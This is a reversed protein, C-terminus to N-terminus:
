RYEPLCTGKMQNLAATIVDRTILGGQCISGIVNMCYAYTDQDYYKYDKVVNETIITPGGHEQTDLVEQLFLVSKKVKEIESKWKFLKTKCHEGMKEQFHIISGHSMSVGLKCLADIDEYKTGSHFLITSVRYALASMRRNRARAAVATAIALSNVKFKDEDPEKPDVGSAGTLAATWFPCVNEVEDLLKKSTFEAVEKPTKSLLVSRTGEKCYEKFERQITQRM